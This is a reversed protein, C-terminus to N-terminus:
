ERRQGRDRFWSRRVDVEDRLGTKFFLRDGSAAAPHSDLICSLRDVLFRAAAGGDIVRHDYSLALPLLLRPEVLGERFRPKLAGRGMIM